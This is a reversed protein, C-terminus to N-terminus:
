SGLTYVLSKFIAEFQQHGRVLNKFGVICDTVIQAINIGRCFLANHLTSIINHNQKVYM